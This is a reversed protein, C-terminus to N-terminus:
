RALRLECPESIARPDALRVAKDACRRLLRPANPTRRSAAAKSWKRTRTKKPWGLSVSLPKETIASFLFLLFFLGKRHVPQM